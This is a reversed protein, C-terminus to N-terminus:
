PLRKVFLEDDLPGNYPYLIARAAAEIGDVGSYLDLLLAIVASTTGFMSSLRIMDLSAQLMGAFSYDWTQFARYLVRTSILYCGSGTKYVPLGHHIFEPELPLNGEEQLGRVTYNETLVICEANCFGPDMIHRSAGVGLDRLAPPEMVDINSLEDLINSDEHLSYEELVRKIRASAPAEDIANVFVMEKQRTVVKYTEMELFSDNDRNPYLLDGFPSAYVESKITPWSLLLKM